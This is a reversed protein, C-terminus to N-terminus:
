LRPRLPPRGAFYLAFGEFDQLHHAVLRPLGGAELLGAAVRGAFSEGRCTVVPLGMWLADSATTHANYPLTDLFLDALRHRALHEDNRLRAAFVLRAADIGRTQAERRLNAEAALNDRLLWLVSGEVQHLLRMWIDFVPRAIKYNNNFCCFVLADAPLGADRRTPTAAAVIRKTDTVQYCDPLHVIKETFFPQQDFPLINGDAIVYDIYDVGLTGPYGLYNVQVPAPRHAFIGPRADTVYGSRDVAIDVQMQNMLTAIEH